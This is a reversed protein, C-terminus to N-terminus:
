CKDYGDIQMLGHQFDILLVIKYCFQKKKFITKADTHNLVTPIYNAQNALYIYLIYQYQLIFHYICLYLIKDM